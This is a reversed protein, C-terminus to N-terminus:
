ISAQAAWHLAKGSAPKEPQFGQLKYDDLCDNAALEFGAKLEAVTECHFSLTNPIGLVRGVFLNDREDYEGRVTVSSFHM